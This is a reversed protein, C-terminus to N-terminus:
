ADATFPDHGPFNESCPYYRWGPAINRDPATPKEHTWHRGEQIAGIEGRAFHMATEGTHVGTCYRAILLREYPSWTFANNNMM